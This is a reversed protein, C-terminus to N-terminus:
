LHLRPSTANEPRRHPMNSRNCPAVIVSIPKPLDDHIKQQHSQKGDYSFLMMDDDIRAQLHVPRNWLHQLGKLTEIAYKIEIDLGNHQQALYLEGANRYNADVVYIYPQGMNSIRYLLSEKLRKYDRSVIRLQNTHPDRRYQYLKLRDIMEETLFEDIFNM